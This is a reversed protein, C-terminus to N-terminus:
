QIWKIIICIFWQIKWSLKEKLFKWALLYVFVPGLMILLTTFIIGYNIYGFYVIVRFIVWIASTIFILLSIKKDLPKFSPRFILFSIIFVFLARMFYLTIPSYFDLILISLVLELGFFFSGLVAAVIYKNLQLHHKKIHPFILAISAIIAPIIVKINQEYVGQIFFSLIIALLITFLPELIKAPELNTIQEGKEAYYIFVNAIVASIIIGAFILINKLEFAEPTLKWFFYLFPLSILIIALFSAVQYLKISIKKKKLIFRELVTGASSALAGFIPIYIM